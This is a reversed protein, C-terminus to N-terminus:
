RLQQLVQVLEFHNVTWALAAVLLVALLWGLRTLIARVRILRNRYVPRYTFTRAQPRTLWMGYM